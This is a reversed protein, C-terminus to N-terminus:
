NEPATQTLDPLAMGVQKVPLHTIGREPVGERLVEYLETVFIEKVAEEVPGFADRVGPTVRQVFAWEQQLSKQLGSYDSQLHNHAVGALLKM